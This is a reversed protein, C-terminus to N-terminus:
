VAEVSVGAFPDNQLRGASSRTARAPTLGRKFRNRLDTLKADRARNFFNLLRHLPQGRRIKAPQSRPNACAIVSQPRFLHFAVCLRSFQIKKKGFGVGFPLGTLEM